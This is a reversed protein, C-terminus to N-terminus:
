AQGVYVLNDFVMLARYHGFAFVADSCFEDDLQFTFLSLVVSWCAQVCLRSEVRCRM